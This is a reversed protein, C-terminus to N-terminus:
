AIKALRKQSSSLVQSIIRWCAPCWWCRVWRRQTSRRMVNGSSFVTAPYKSYDWAKVATLSAKATLEQSTIMWNDNLWQERWRSWFWLADISCTGCFLKTLKKGPTALSDKSNLLAERGLSCYSDSPSQITCLRDQSYKSVQEKYTSPNLSRSACRPDWHKEAAHHWLSPFRSRLARYIADKRALQFRYRAFWSSGKIIPEQPTPLRSCSSFEM